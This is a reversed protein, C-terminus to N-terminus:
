ADASRRFQELIRRSAEQPSVKGASVDALLPAFAPKPSGDRAFAFGAVDRVLLARVQDRLRRERRRQWEGSSQSWAAHQAVASVLAQVGDGREAVTRLIPPSWAPTGTPAGAPPEPHALLLNAEVDGQVRDAGALDAK